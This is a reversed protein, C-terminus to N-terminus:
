HCMRVVCPEEYIRQSLFTAEHVVATAFISINTNYPRFPDHPISKGIETLTLLDGLKDM